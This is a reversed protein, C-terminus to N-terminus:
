GDLSLTLTGVVDQGGCGAVLVEGDIWGRGVDVSGLQQRSGGHGFDHASEGALSCAGRKICHLRQAVNAEREILKADDNEGNTQTKSNADDCEM